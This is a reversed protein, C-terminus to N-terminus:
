QISVTRRATFPAPSQYVRGDLLTVSLSSVEQATGLGFHVAMESAGGYSSESSVWDSQVFGEAEVTVRSGTPAIVKLWAEETCGDSLYLFPRDEVHTILLDLVGDDNHDNAIM